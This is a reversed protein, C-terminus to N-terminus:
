RALSPHGFDMEDRLFAVEKCKGRRNEVLSCRLMAKERGEKTYTYRELLAGCSPCPTNTFANPDPTRQAYPLEYRKGQGNWFMVTECGAGSCKLFHDAKLKTSKSPIKSMAQGCKPCATKSTTAQPKPKTPNSTRTATGKSCRAATEKLQGEQGSKASLQQSAQALAPAFYTRHWDTLYKQWDQKGQAIADLASEM